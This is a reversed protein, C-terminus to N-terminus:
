SSADKLLANLGQSERDCADAATNAATAWFYEAFGKMQLFSLFSFSFHKDALLTILESETKRGTVNQKKQRKHQWSTEFILEKNM